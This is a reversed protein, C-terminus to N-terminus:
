RTMEKLTEVVMESLVALNYGGELSFVTPLNFSLISRVIRVIGKSSVKLGALPDDIHIDYGASVLMLEPKFKEILEPLTEEYAKLFEKDNAGDFMPINYNYGYGARAGKENVGGTELFLPYQHTSFFFVLPSSYFANQTGNGHHADFDVIFIKKVNMYKLAYKAAIAINNFLCFGMGKSRESHHGPPRVTCFIRKIETQLVAEAAFAVSGAAALSSEWSYKTIYTDNDLEGGGNNSMEIVKKIYSSSHNLGIIAEDAYKAPFTKLDKGFSENRVAKIIADVRDPSEPHGPKSHKLFINDYLFGAKNSM